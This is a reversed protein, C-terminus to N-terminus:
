REMGKFIKMLIYKAIHGFNAPLDKHLHLFFVADIIQADIEDPTTMTGKTELYTLLASKPTSLMTGDVHSLSLPVPTLPYKLVQAMDVKRQLSIHLISGFLDCMLCASLINRNSANIKQKGTETAFLIIKNCKSLNKLSDLTTHANKLLNKQNMKGM